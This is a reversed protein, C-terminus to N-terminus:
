RNVDVAFGGVGVALKIADGGVRGRALIDDGERLKEKESADAGLNLSEMRPSKHHGREEAFTTEGRSYYISGEGTDQLKTRAGGM